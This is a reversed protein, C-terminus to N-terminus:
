DGELLLAVLAPDDLIKDFSTPPTGGAENAAARGATLVKTKSGYKAILANDPHTEPDVLAAAATKEEDSVVQRLRAAEMEPAIYVADRSTAPPAIVGTEVVGDATRSTAIRDQPPSTAAPTEDVTAEWENKSWLRLGIGFRMAANRLFDGILEKAEDHKGKECTGVGIRGQGLLHLTGWMSAEKGSYVIAPTGDPANGFPLWYWSPDIECLIRTIEAHGVYDIHM